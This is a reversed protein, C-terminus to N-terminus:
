WGGSRGFHRDPSWGDKLRRPNISCLGKAVGVVYLHEVWKWFERESNHSKMDNILRTDVVMEADNKPYTLHDHSPYMSHTPPLLPNLVLGSYYGRV